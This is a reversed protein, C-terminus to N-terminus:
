RRLHKSPVQQRWRRFQVANKFTKFPGAADMKQTALREEATSPMLKEFFM